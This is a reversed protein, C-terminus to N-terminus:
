QPFSLVDAVGGAPVGALTVFLENGSPGGFCLGTVEAVPLPLREVIEGAEDLRAVCWGSQLALWLRGERDFTAACPEGAVAPVRALLRCKGSALNVQFLSRRQRSILTASWGDPTIAIGDIPLHVRIAAALRGDPSLRHLSCRDPEDQLAVLLSSTGPIAALAAVPAPMPFVAGDRLRAVSDRRGTFAGFHPTVALAKPTPGAVGLRVPGRASTTCVDGSGCDIWLPRQAIADWQPACAGGPSAAAVVSHNSSRLGRDARPRVQASVVRAADAVECGLTEIRDLPFRHAPAAVSIVAVSHGHHDLVPSAVCRRGVRIEEDDVGYARARLRDFDVELATPDTLTQKTMREFRRSLFTRRVAEPQFAMMAKGQATCHLPKRAGLDAQSSDAHPSLFRGITLMGDGDLVSLYATEGTIDRLRRLEASAVSSLDSSAWVQQVIDLMRYGIQFGGGMPDSRVIGRVSMASLMRYLTPRAIGTTDMLDRASVFGRTHAIADLIDFAKALAGTGAPMEKEPRSRDKSTM